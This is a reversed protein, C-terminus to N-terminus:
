YSPHVFQIFYSNGFLETNYLMVTETLGEQKTPRDWAMLSNHHTDLIPRFMDKTHNLTFLTNSRRKWLWISMTNQNSFWRLDKFFSKSDFYPLIMTTQKGLELHQMSQKIWKSPECHRKMREQLVLFNEYNGDDIRECQAEVKLITFRSDSGV